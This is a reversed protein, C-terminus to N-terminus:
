RPRAVGGFLVVADWVLHALLPAALRGTAARLAGWITGCVFAAAVLVPSRTPALGAAYLLATLLVGPTVGLRESLVQQVLGRWVLEESILIPLLALAAAAPSLASFAAYLGATDAVIGPLVRGV